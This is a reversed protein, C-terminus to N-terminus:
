KKDLEYINMKMKTFLYHYVNFCNGESTVDIIDVENIDISENNNFKQYIIKM